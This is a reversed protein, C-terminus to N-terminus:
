YRVSIPIEMFKKFEKITCEEAVIWDRQVFKKFKKNIM